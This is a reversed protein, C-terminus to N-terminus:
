AEEGREKCQMELLDVSVPFEEHGFQCPQAQSEQFFRTHSSFRKGDCALSSIGATGSKLPQVALLLRAPKREIGVRAIQNQQLSIGITSQLTIFLKRLTQISIAKLLVHQEDISTRTRDRAPGASLGALGFTGTIKKSPMKNAKSPPATDAM